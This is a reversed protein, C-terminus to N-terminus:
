EENKKTPKTSKLRALAGEQYPQPPITNGSEYQWYTRAPTDLLAAAEAQTIGLRKRASKLQDSFPMLELLKGNWVLAWGQEM